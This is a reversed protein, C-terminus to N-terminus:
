NKKEETTEKEFTIPIVKEEKLADAKRPATITLIGDNSLSSIINKLEHGKPITFSRVLHRALYGMENSKEEHTAEIKVLNDVAKVTIEKPNFNRVDIQVQFKEDDQVIKEDNVYELSEEIRRMTPYAFGKFMEESMRMHNELLRLPTAMSMMERLMFPM